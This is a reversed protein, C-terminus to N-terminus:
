QNRKGDSEQLLRSFVELREQPLKDEQHRQTQPRGEWTGAEWHGLELVPAPGEGKASARQLAEEADFWQPDAAPESAKAACYRQWRDSARLRLKKTQKSGGYDSSVDSLDEDTDDLPDEYLSHRLPIDNSGKTGHMPAPTPRCDCHQPREHENGARARPPSTDPDTLETKHECDPESRAGAAFSEEATHLPLPWSPLLSFLTSHSVGDTSHLAVSCLLPTSSHISDEWTNHLAM